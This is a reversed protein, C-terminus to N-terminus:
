NGRLFNHGGYKTKDLIYLLPKFPLGAGEPYGYSPDLVLPNKHNMYHNFHSEDHWIAIINQQLDININNRLTEILQLYADTQGGNIGGLFYHKGEGNKIAATSRSNREYTFSREPKDWFYPHLVSVLGDNHKGPLIDKGVKDVFLINANLFFLYDFAKLDTKIRSFLEYRLLTSYPWEIQEQYIKRVNQHGEAFIHEADTFVFYTKQLSPLFLQEASLYFKEWFIAYRGTCIYLIGVM